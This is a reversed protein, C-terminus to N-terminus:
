LESQSRLSASNPECELRFGDPARKDSEGSKGLRLFRRSEYERTWRFLTSEAISYRELTEAVSHHCKYYKVVEIKFETPYTKQPM